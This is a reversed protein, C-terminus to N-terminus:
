SREIVFRYAEIVKEDSAKSNDIKNALTNINYSSTRIELLDCISRLQEATLTRCKDIISSRTESETVVEVSVINDPSDLITTTPTDENIVNLSNVFTPETDTDSTIINVANVVTGTTALDTPTTPIEASINNDALPTENNITGSVEQSTPVENNSVDINDNVPATPVLPAENVVENVVVSDDTINSTVDDTPPNNSVEATESSSTSDKDIMDTMSSDNDSSHEPKHSHKRHRKSFDTNEHSLHVSQDVIDTDRTPKHGFKKRHRIQFSKLGNFRRRIRQDQATEESEVVYDISSLSKFYNIMGPAQDIIITQGPGIEVGQNGPVPISRLENRKNTIKFKM